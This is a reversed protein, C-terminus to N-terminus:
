SRDGFSQPKQPVPALAEGLGGRGPRHRDVLSHNRRHRHHAGRSKGRAGFGIRSACRRHARLRQPQHHAARLPVCSRCFSKRNRKRSNQATHSRQRARGARFECFTPLASAPRPMKRLSTQNKIKAEVDVVAATKDESETSHQSIKGQKGVFDLFKNLDQPAVRVAVNGRAVVRCNRQDCEVFADRM